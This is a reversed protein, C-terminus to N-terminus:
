GQDGRPQGPVTSVPPASVRAMIRAYAEEIQMLYTTPAGYHHFVNKWYALAWDVLQPPANPSLALLAYDSALSEGPLLVKDRYVNERAKIMEIDSISFKKHERVLGTVVPEYSRPMWWTKSQKDFACTEVAPRLVNKQWDPDYPLALGIWPEPALRWVPFSSRM